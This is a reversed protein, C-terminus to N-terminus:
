AAEDGMPAAGTGAGEGATASQQVDRGHEEHEEHEERFHSLSFQPAHAGAVLEPADHLDGDAEPLCIHYCAGKGFGSRVHRVALAARARDLQPRNFGAVLAARECEKAPKPGDALYGRLWEECVHRRGLRGSASSQSGKVTRTLAANADLEITEPLWEVVAVDDEKRVVYPLAPQKEALNAGNDLMLRRGGSPDDPDPLFLFNTRCVGVYGIDGLVRYKGNTGSGGRKNLHTILLVTANLRAAMQKLPELARRADVNRGLYATIPDFVILRCDGLEAARREIARLDAASATPPRVGSSGPGEPDLMTSIMKVRDLDAGAALLRPVITRAWDDEASLLIASGLPAMGPGDAGGGPLVGGRTVAAILSLAALSKGLKPDGSFLALMGLPIRGPWLWEIRQPAIASASILQAELGSDVDPEPEAHGTVNPCARWLLGVEDALRQRLKDYSEM